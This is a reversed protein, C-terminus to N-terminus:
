KDVASWIQVRGYTKAAAERGNSTGASKRNTEKEGPFLYTM